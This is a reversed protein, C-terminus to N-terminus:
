KEFGLFKVGGPAAKPTEASSTAPIQVGMLLERVEPYKAAVAEAIQKHATAREKRVALAGAELGLLAEPVEQKMERMKSIQILTDEAADFRKKNEQDYKSLQNTYIQQAKATKDANARAGARINEQKEASANTAAKEVIGTEAKLVDGKAQAKLTAVKTGVDLVRKGAESRHALAADADGAKEQYDAKKIDFIAKDVENLLKKREKKDEITQDIYASMAKMGSVLIPGPTSGFMAWAQAKRFNVQEESNEDIERRNALLRAKEDALFSNDAGAATRAERVQNVYDTLPAAAEKQAGEYAKELGKTYVDPKNYEALAPALENRMERAYHATRSDSPATKSKPKVETTPEETGEEPVLGRKAFALIGGSAMGVGAAKRTQSRRAMEGGLIDKTDPDTSPDNVKKGLQDDGLRKSMDRLEYDDLGSAIGGSAMKIIGGEKASKGSNSLSNVMGLAGIGQQLLNPQAQYSQTTMAQMPQGRIMNSLMGLQMFPYQQSTAYDQIVQNLRNQEYEQQQKGVALQQQMLGTQQAYQQNGMDSLAKASELGQGMGRLNLDAGYQQAQRAQEFASQMGKGYIDAQQQGLNRQREAEVIASRSGGFAGQQAAKAQNEQGMMASQRAAERMQPALANEMYPSMYAQTAYPNTAQQAYQQGAGMSGLGAGAAMMSGYQGQQPLQYGQLGKMAQSQMPTFGAVTEGSGGRKTDYESYSQYPRFGGGPAYIQGKTANMMEHVYPEMYEPINTQYSTSTSPGGGGGQPKIKRNGNHKFAEEPLDPIGALAMARNNFRM